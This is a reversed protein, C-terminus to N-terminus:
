LQELFAALQVLDDEKELNLKQTKIFRSIKEEEKPFLNMINKKSALVLTKKDTEIYFTTTVSLLLNENIDIDNYNVRTDIRDISEITGTSNPIGYGGVKQKDAIRMRENKLFRFRGGDSIVQMCESAYFFHATGITVEKVTEENSIALTDGKEDIFQINAIAKNYNLQGKYRKGNKYEVIGTEFSSFAYMEKRFNEWASSGGKINTRQVSTQCFTQASFAAVAALLYLEKRM